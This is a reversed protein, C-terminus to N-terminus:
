NKLGIWEIIGDRDQDGVKANNLYWINIIHFGQHLRIPLTLTEWSNDGRALSAFKLQVGDIGIAIKVPPPVHHLANVSLTYVGSQEVSILAAAQGTWWFIGNTGSYPYNLSTGFTITPPDIPTMWRLQAGNLHLTNTVTYVEFTPDKQRAAALFEPTEPDHSMVAAITEAFIVGFAQQHVDQIEGSMLARKYNRNAIAFEGDQLFSDAVLLFQISDLGANIYSSKDQLGQKEMQDFALTTEWPLLPNRVSLSYAREFSEGAEQWKGQAAYVQGKLRYAQPHNPRWYSAASLQDMITSLLTISPQSKLKPLAFALRSVFFDSRAESSWILAEQMDTLAYKIHYAWVIERIASRNMVVIFMIAALSPWIGRLISKSIKM